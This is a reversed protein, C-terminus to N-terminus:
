ILVELLMESSHSLRCYNTGLFLSCVPLCNKKQLVLSAEDEDNNGDGNAMHEISISYEQFRAM